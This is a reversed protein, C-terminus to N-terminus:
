FTLALNALQREKRRIVVVSLFQSAILIISIASIWLGAEPVVLSAIFLMAGLALSVLLYDFLWFAVRVINKQQALLDHARFVEKTYRETDTDISGSDTRVTLDPALVTNFIRIHAATLNGLIVQKNFNVQKRWDEESSHFNNLVLLSGGGGILPALSTFVAKAALAELITEPTM